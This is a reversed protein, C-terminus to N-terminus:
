RWQEGIQLTIMKSWWWWALPALLIDGHVIYIQDMKTWYSKSALATEHNVVEVRGGTAAYQVAM